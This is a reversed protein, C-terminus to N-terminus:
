LFYRSLYDAASRPEYHLTRSKKTKETFLFNTPTFTKNFFGKEKNSIEVRQVFVKHKAWTMKQMARFYRGDDHKTAAGKVDVWWMGDSMLFTPKKTPWHYAEFEVMDGMLNNIFNVSFLICWDPTYKMGPLSEFEREETRTKTKLVKRHTYSSVHPDTLQFSPPHFTAELIHGREVMEEVWWSFWEEEKSDFKSQNDAM